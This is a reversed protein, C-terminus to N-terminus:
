PRWARRTVWTVQVKTLCTYTWLLADRWSLWLAGARRTATTADSANLALADAFSMVTLVPCSSNPVPASQESRSAIWAALVLVAKPPQGVPLGLPVSVIKTVPPECYLTPMPPVASSALAEPSKSMVENMLIAAVPVPLARISPPPKSRTKWIRACPLRSPVWRSMTLPLATAWVLVAPPPIRSWPTRLRRSEITCIFREVLLVPHSQPPPMATSPM